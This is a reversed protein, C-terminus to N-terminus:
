RGFVTLALAFGVIAAVCIYTLLRWPLLEDVGLRVFAVRVVAAGLVGAGTCILWAPFYAGFLPISPSVSRVQRCSGDRPAPDISHILTEYSAPAASAAM